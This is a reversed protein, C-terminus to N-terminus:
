TAEHWCDPSSAGVMHLFMLISAFKSGGAVLSSIRAEASCNTRFSLPVFLGDLALSATNSRATSSTVAAAVRRIRDSFVVAGGRFRSSSARLARSRDSARNEYAAFRERVVARQRHDRATSCGPARLAFHSTRLARHSTRPATRLAVHA